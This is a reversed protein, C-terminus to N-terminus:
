AESSLREAVLEDVILVTPQLLKLGARIVGLKRWGGSALVINRTGRLDIPNVALVRQNM